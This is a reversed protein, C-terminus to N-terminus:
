NRALRALNEGGRENVHMRMYKSRASRRTESVAIYIISKSSM